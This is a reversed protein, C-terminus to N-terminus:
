PRVEELEATALEAEQLRQLRQRNAQWRIVDFVATAAVRHNHVLAELLKFMENPEGSAVAVEEGCDLRALLRMEGNAAKLKLESVKELNIAQEGSLVWM